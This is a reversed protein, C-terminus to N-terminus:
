YLGWQRVWCSEVRETPKWFNGPFLFTLFYFLRERLRVINKAKRMICLHPFSATAKGPIWPMIVCFNKESRDWERIGELLLILNLIVAISQICPLGQNWRPVAFECELVNDVKPVVTYNSLWIRACCSYLIPSVVHRLFFFFGIFLPKHSSFPSASSSQVPFGPLAAHGLHGKPLDKIYSKPWLSDLLVRGLHCCCSCSHYASVLAAPWM